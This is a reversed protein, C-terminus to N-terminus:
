TGHETLQQHRVTHGHDVVRRHEHTRRVFTYRSSNGASILGRDRSVRLSSSTRFKMEDTPREMM